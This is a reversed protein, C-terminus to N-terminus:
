VIALKGFRRKCKRANSNKRWKKCKKADEEDNLRGPKGKRNRCCVCNQKCWNLCKFKKCKGKKCKCKNKNGLLFRRHTARSQPGADVTKEGDGLLQSVADGDSVDFFFLHHTISHKKDNQPKLHFRFNQFRFNEETIYVKTCIIYSSFITFRSLIMYELSVKVSKQM